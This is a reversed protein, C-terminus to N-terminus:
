FRCVAQRFRKQIKTRNDRSFLNMELNLRMLNGLYPSECLARIGSNGIRCYSVDLERLNSLVEAGAILEMGETGIDNWSLNLSELAELHPSAVLDEVSASTIRNYSLNLSEAGILFPCAAFARIPPDGFLRTHLDLHPHQSAMEAALRKRDDSRLLMWVTPRETDLSPTRTRPDKLYLRIFEGLPDNREQLWDALILWPIDDESAWIGTLLAAEERPIPM